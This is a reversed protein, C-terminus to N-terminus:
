GLGTVSAGFAVVDLENAKLARQSFAEDAGYDLVMEGKEADVDIVTTLSM